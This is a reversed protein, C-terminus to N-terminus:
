DAAWRKQPPEYADGKPPQSKAWRVVQARVWSDVEYSIPRAPAFKYKNPWVGTATKFKMASWGPKYGKKAAVSKLQGFFDALGIQKGQLEIIGNKNRKKQLKTLEVLEGEEEQVKSKPEPKFGCSPCVSVRPPRLYHCSPCEKPLPEKHIAKESRGSGDDLCPFHIDTVFGLRSTTDSHDLLILHDKGPATRLGRGVIQTYLIHSRTPRALVLCRVDWDVGTTLTECNCVVRYEGRHFKDRIVKRETLDTHADQYGCPIGAAIFREQLHKAHARDVGFVLTPRGEGLKMWTEVVDAVLPETNMRDSLQGEHYDGAIIKVGSLDPHSPAFCRFPSLRGWDIMQQTTAVVILHDFHQGLGKSWPTASLGIFPVKSWEPMAMWKELFQSRIHAEDVIVLDAEPLSRRSLTQLSAIQIPRSWDTLIHSAQIVGCDQVGDQAFAEITQDVLSIRPVTFIARKGKAQALEVIKAATKTKGSGTPSMLIPRRKGQRLADRLNDIAAAQYDYLERPQHQEPFLPGDRM